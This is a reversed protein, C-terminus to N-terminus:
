EHLFGFSTMNQWDSLNFLLKGAWMRFNIM